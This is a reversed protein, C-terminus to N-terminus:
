DNVTPSDAVKIIFGEGEVPFRRIWEINQALGCAFTSPTYSPDTFSPTIGSPVINSPIQDSPVTSQLILGVAAMKMLKFEMYYCGPMCTDSAQWDYIFFSDMLVDKTVTGDLETVDQYVMETSAPANTFKLIRLPAGKKWTQVPTGHYGRQVQVLKNPEDFGVVLMQEPLRSQEMLLVDGVMIQNFGIGDAFALVTDNDDLSTKLKTKAWMSAELVLDTLDLPGDCDEM